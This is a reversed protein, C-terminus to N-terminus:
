DLCHVARAHRARPDPLQQLLERVTVLRAPHIVEPAIEALPELVFRRECMRPHPIVLDADSRREGGYLLIDIDLTRPANRASRRRGRRREIRLALELLARPSLDSELCVCANLFPGGDPCDVPETEIM